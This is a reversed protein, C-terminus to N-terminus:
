QITKGKKVKKGAEYLFFMENAKIKKSAEVADVIGKSIATGGLAFAAGIGIAEALEGGSAFATILAGIGAWTKQDAFVNKAINKFMNNDRIAYNITDIQPQIDRLYIIMCEQKSSETYPIEKVEDAMKLIAARYPIIYRDLEKRIDIIEDFSAEEFGPLTSIAYDSLYSPICLSPIKSGQYSSMITKGNITKFGDAILYDKEFQFFQRHNIHEDAKRIDITPTIYEIREQNLFKDWSDSYYQREYLWRAMKAPEVYKSHMKAYDLNAQLAIRKASTWDSNSCSAFYNDDDLLIVWALWKELLEAYDHMTFEKRATSDLGIFKPDATDYVKVKDAYLYAAKLSNIVTKGDVFYDNFISITFDMM